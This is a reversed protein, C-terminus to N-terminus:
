DELCGDKLRFTRNCFKNILRKDHSAIILIESETVLSRLRNESYERFEVDGASLWEDMLLIEPEFITEMSFTLRVSMGSSYNRVPMLLYDGLGSAEAIRQRKEKFEDQPCGNFLLFLDINEFGTANQDIGAGIDVLSGIKGRVDLSGYSPQYIGALLRLLTTKGAGNPGVLGVRDGASIQFDINKLAKLIVRGTELEFKSRTIVDILSKKMSRSGYHYLPFDLGVNDAKIYTQTM